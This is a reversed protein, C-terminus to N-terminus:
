MEEMDDGEMEEEDEYEDIYVQEPDIGLGDLQSRVEAETRLFPHSLMVDYLAMETEWGAATLRDLIGAVGDLHSALNQGLQRVEEGTVPGGENLLHGPKTFLHLTITVTMIAAEKTSPHWRAPQNITGGRHAATLALLRNCAAPTQKVVFVFLGQGGTFVASIL